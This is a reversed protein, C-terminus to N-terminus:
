STGAPGRMEVLRAILLDIDEDTRFTIIGAVDVEMGTDRGPVPADWMIIAREGGITTSGTLIRGYGLRFRICRTLDKALEWRDEHDSHDTV